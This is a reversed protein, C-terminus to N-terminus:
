DDEGSPGGQGPTPADPPAHFHDQLYDGVRRALRDSGAATLVTRIAELRGRETEQLDAELAVLEADLEGVLAQARAAVDSGAYRAAIAEGSQRCQRFLDVLRFFRAREVEAEVEALSGLGERSLETIVRAAEETHREEFPYRDLLETWLAICRGYEDARQAEEAQSRLRGAEEREEEFRVQLTVDLPGALPATLLFGGGTARGRLTVPTAFRVRVLELGSGLVVDTVGEREFDVSHQTYGTDAMTAFGSRAIQPEVFATLEGGGQPPRVSLNWGAAHKDFSITGCPASAGLPVGTARAEFRSLLIRDVRSFALGRPPDGFSILRSEDLRSLEPASTAVLSVDDAEVFGGQGGAPAHASLVARARDFGEPVRAVLVVETAEAEASSSWATAPRTAPREESGEGARSFEIGAAGHADVGRLTARLELGQGGMVRVADSRLVAWEGAALEALVGSEGTSRASGDRLFGAPAGNADEWGGEAEGEFGYEGGLLNGEPEVVPRLQAAEGPGGGGQTFWWGAGGLAIVLALLPLVWRGSRRPGTKARELQASSVVLEEPANQVMTAQEDFGSNLDGRPVERETLPPPATAKADLFTFGVQGFYVESGPRLRSELVKEGAVRTGNTSGLDRLLIEDESVLLEAHKGSVSSELIQLSNGPRRGVTFKPGALPIMEGRREGTEFRLSYRNSM